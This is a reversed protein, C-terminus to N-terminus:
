VVHAALWQRRFVEPLLAAAGARSRAHKRPEGYIRLAHEASLVPLLRVKEADVVIRAERVPVRREAARPLTRVLRHAHVHRMKATEPQVAYADVAEVPLYGIRFAMEDIGAAMELPQVIQYREAGGVADGGNQRRHRM